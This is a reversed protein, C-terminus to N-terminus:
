MHDGDVPSEQVVQALGVADGEAVLVYVTVPVDAVPQELVALTVTVTLESGVTLAPDFTVIHSPLLM